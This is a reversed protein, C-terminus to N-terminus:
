RSLFGAVEPWQNVKRAAIRHTIERDLKLLIARAFDEFGNAVVVFAGQGSIVESRYYDDLRPFKKTLIPLGNIQVGKATALLKAQPLKIFKEETPDTEVGDGSVDIVKRLGRYKNNEMM